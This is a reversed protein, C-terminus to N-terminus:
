GKSLNAPTGPTTSKKEAHFQLEALAWGLESGMPANAPAKSALERFVKVAVRRDLEELWDKWRQASEPTM